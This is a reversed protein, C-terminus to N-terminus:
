IIGTKWLECLEYKKQLGKKIAQVFFRLFSSLASEM